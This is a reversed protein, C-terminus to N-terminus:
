DRCKASDLRPLVHSSVKMNEKETPESNGQKKKKNRRMKNDPRRHPTNYGGRLLHHLTQRQGHLYAVLLVGNLM